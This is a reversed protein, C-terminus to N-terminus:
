GAKRPKLNVICRHKPPAIVLSDHPIMEEDWKGPCEPVTWTEYNIIVASILLRIELLAMSNCTLLLKIQAISRELVFGLDM